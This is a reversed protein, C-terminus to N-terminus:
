KKLNEKFEKAQKVLFNKIQNWTVSESLIMKRKYSEKEADSFYTIAQLGLYENFPPYKEKTLRFIKQLGLLRILFYIDIFDRQIGRQIIAILKMAAIDEISALNVYATEIVPKLLKYPYIFLGTEITDLKVILTNLSKQILIVERNNKQLELLIEESDFERPNYFDFDVSLRHKIQLALATGGALYFGRKKLFGLKPLLSLRKKDFIEWHLEKKAM